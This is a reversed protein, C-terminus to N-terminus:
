HNELEVTCGRLPGTTHCPIDSTIPRNIFSFSLKWTALGIAPLETQAPGPLGGEEPQWNARLWALLPAACDAGLLQFTSQLAPVAGQLVCECVYLMHVLASM